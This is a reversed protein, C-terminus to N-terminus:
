SLRRRTLPEEEFVYDDEDTKRLKVPLAALAILALLPSFLLLAGLGWLFGNRGKASAVAATLISGTVWGFASVLILAFILADTPSIM